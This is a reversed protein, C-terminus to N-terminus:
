VIILLLLFRLCVYLCLVLSTFVLDIMRLGARPPDVIAIIHKKHIKRIEDQLVKEAPGCVFRANEIGLFFFVYTCDSTLQLHQLKCM